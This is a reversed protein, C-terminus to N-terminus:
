KVINAVQYIRNKTVRHTYNREHYAVTVRLKNGNIEIGELETAVHKWHRTNVHYHRWKKHNTQHWKIKVIERPYSSNRGTPTHERSIYINCHNDIAYGQISNLHKGFFHRIHFASVPKHHKLNIGKYKRHSAKDLAHNITKFHYVAFHGNNHTDVTAILLWKYDPSIAAESRKVRSFKKQSMDTAYNLHTLHPIKSLHVITKHGRKPFRVRALETDWSYEEGRFQVPRAGVLWHDKSTAVLTQTHGFNRLVLQHHMSFHATRRHHPRRAASIITDENVEQLAYIHKGKVTTKQVVTPYLSHLRFLLRANNRSKALARSPCTTLLMLSIIILLFTSYNRYKKM